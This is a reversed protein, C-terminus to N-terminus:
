DSESVDSQETTNGTTLSILPMLISTSHMMLDERSLLEFPDHSRQTTTSRTTASPDTTSRVSSTHPRKLTVAASRAPTVSTWM